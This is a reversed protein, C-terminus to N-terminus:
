PVHTPLPRASAHGLRHQAIQSCKLISGVTKIFISELRRRGAEARLSCSDSSSRRGSRRCSVSFKARSPQARRGRRSTQTTVCSCPACFSRGRSATWGWSNFSYAGSPRRSRMASRRLRRISRSTSDHLRRMNGGAAMRGSTGRKGTTRAMRGSRGGGRRSRGSRVRPSTSIGGFPRSVFAAISATPCASASGCTSRLTWPATADDAAQARRAM